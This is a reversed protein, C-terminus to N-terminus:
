ITLMYLFPLVLGYKKINLRRKLIGYVNRAHALRSILLREKNKKNYFKSEYVVLFLLHKKLSLLYKQM